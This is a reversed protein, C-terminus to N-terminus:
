SATPLRSWKRALREERGFYLGGVVGRPHHWARDFDILRWAGGFRGWSSAKAEERSYGDRILVHRQMSWTRESPVADAARFVVAVHGFTVLPRAVDPRRRQKWESRNALWGRLVRRNKVSPVKVAVRRTVLVSRTVGRAVHM